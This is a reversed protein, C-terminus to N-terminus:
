VHGTADPGIGSLGQTSSLATDQHPFCAPLWFVLLLHNTSISSAPARFVGNMLKRTVVHAPKTGLPDFLGLDQHSKWM